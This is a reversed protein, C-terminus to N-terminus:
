WKVIKMIRNALWQHGKLSPHQFDTMLCDDPIDSIDIYNKGYVEQMIRNYQLVKNRIGPNLQEYHNNPVITSIAYIQTGPRFFANINKLNTRYEEPKLNSKQRIKRIKAKWKSPMIWLLKRTVWFYNLVTLEKQTFARPAADVIGVQVIVVDPLFMKLYAARNYLDWSTAGGMSGQFLLYDHQQKIGQEVLYPWSEEYTVKQPNDRPLSTSATMVLLKKM